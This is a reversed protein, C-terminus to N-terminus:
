GASAALPEGAGGARGIAQLQRPDRLMLAMVEPAPLIEIQERGRNTVLLGQSGHQGPVGSLADRLFDREEPFLSLDHALRDLNAGGEQRLLLKTHTNTLARQGQPTQTYGIWQQSMHGICLGESRGLALLNGVLLATEPNALLTEVEDLGVVRRVVRGAAKSRNTARWVLAAVLYTALGRLKEDQRQTIARLDFVVFPNDLRATTRSAFLRGWPAVAFPELRAALTSKGWAADNRLVAHLDALTPMREPIWEAPNDRRVGAQAYTERLAAALVGYDEPSLPYRPSSVALSLFGLVDLLTQDFGVAPDVDMVNVVADPDPGWVIREGGFHACAKEYDRKPDVLMVQDPVNAGGGCLMECLVSFFAFSKGTGTPAIICFHPSPPGGGEPAFVDYLIPRRDRLALGWLAGVGMSVMSASFPFGYALTTTDVPQERRLRRRMLPLSDQFGEAHELTAPWATAQLTTLRDLVRDELHRLEGASRARLTITTALHFLRAHGAMVQAEVATASELAMQELPDSLRGGKARSLEQSLHQVRRMRLLRVTAQPTLPTVQQSLTVDGGLRLFPLLWGSHVVPPLKALVITRTLWGEVVYLDRSRAVWLPAIRELPHAPARHFPASTGAEGEGGEGGEGAYWWHGPVDGRWLRALSAVLEEGVIPRLTMGLRAAVRQLQAGAQLAARRSKGPVCVYFQLARADGRQSLRDLHDAAALGLARYAPQEFTSAHARREQVYRTLGGELARAVFQMGAGPAANLLAAWRRLFGEAEEASYLEYPVGQVEYVARWAGGDRLRVADEVRAIQVEQQWTAPAGAVARRLAEGQPVDRYRTLELEAEEDPTLFEAARPGLRLLLRGRLQHLADALKPRLM